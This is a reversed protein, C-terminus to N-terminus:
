KETRQFLEKAKSHSPDNQLLKLAIKRADTFRGMGILAEAKGTLFESNEPEEKVLPTFLLYAKLFLGSNLAEFAEREKGTKVLVGLSAVAVGLSDPDSMIPEEVRMSTKPFSPGFWGRKFAQATVTKDPSPLPPPLEPSHGLRHDTEEFFRKYQIVLPHRPNIEWAKRVWIRATSIDGTELDILGLLLLAEIDRPFAKHVSLALTKAEPLTGNQYLKAAKRLPESLEGGFSVLALRFICLTTFVLFRINSTPKSSLSFVTREFMEESLKRRHPQAITKM